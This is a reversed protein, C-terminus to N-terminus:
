PVAPPGYGVVAPVIVLQVHGLPADSPVHCYTTERADSLSAANRTTALLELQLADDDGGGGWSPLAAEGASADAAHEHGAFASV